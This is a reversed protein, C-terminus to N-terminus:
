IQQILYYMSPFSGGITFRIKGAGYTAPVPGVQFGAESISWVKLGPIDTELELTAEIVEIQIPGHGLKLQLTHDSNYEAGTNDARGVATLLLNNSHATDEDCLSSLAIVAFDTDVKVTLGKMAVAGLAGLFGYAVKTRPTDIIGYRKALNRYLEGTESRIETADKPVIPENMPAQRAGCAASGPLRMGVKCVESAGLLAPVHAPHILGELAGTTDDHLLGTLVIETGIDPERVDGRRMMLAAHYFLGFKAPDNFTDFVGGRYPVGSLADSTIPAAIQNVHERCDYRYTHIATGAWGQLCAVAALQLPSEARWENPWPDDWESAFFPKDLVRYGSLAALIPDREGLMSRNLFRKETPTWCGWSYWYVHSDTFDTVLQTELSSMGGQCWNTGTIPIRVGLQRLHRYMEQYYARQLESLFTIVSADSGAFDVPTAPSPIGRPKAWALYRSELQSRYPEVLNRNMGLSLLENENALETMVIAPDDKYALGTFPNVHTWLQENFEKQLEILRPDFNSYPRAADWLQDAAAVGDGSRFRRYTLLDMYIYIGERKLCHILYDLRDMSVPDLHRTDALRPGKSFQFINPTSWDGDMQHFRVLNVGFKALRRAVKESHSHPPFNAASNFNTGWFRGTAGDEFAMRGARVQLFGHKGAPKEKEFLFSLDVPADDWPLTFPIIRRTATQM